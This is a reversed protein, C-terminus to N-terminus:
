KKLDKILSFTQRWKGPSTPPLTYHFFHSIIVDPPFPDLIQYKQPSMM